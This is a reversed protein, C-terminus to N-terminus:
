VTVDFSTHENLCFSFHNLLILLPSRRYPSRQWRDKHLWQLIICDRQGLNQRARLPIKPHVRCQGIEWDLGGQYSNHLSCLLAWCICLLVRIRNWKCKKNHLINRLLASSCFHVSSCHGIWQLFSELRGDWVLTYQPGHLAAPFVCVCMFVCVCECVSVCVWVFRWIVWHVCEETPGLATANWPVPNCTKAFCVQTWHGRISSPHLAASGCYCRPTKGGGRRDGMGYYYLNIISAKYLGILLSECVQMDHSQFFGTKLATSYPWQLPFWISKWVRGRRQLIRRLYPGEANRHCTDQSTLGSIHLYGDWAM